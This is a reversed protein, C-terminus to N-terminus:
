AGRVGFLSRKVSLLRRYASDGICKRLIRQLDTRIKDRPRGWTHAYHHMSITHATLKPEHVDQDYGCFFEAPYITTDAVQQIVDEHRFGHSELIGTVRRNVTQLDLGDETVFSSRNYSELIESLLPLYQVCGFILGPNVFGGSEMGTFARNELVWLPIPQLLEVDTDLYVGGHAQLIDFRAYDSVFAWKKAEYAERAYQAKTVDFNSENWEIIEWGPM